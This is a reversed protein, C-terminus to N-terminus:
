CITSETDCLQEVQLSMCFSLIENISRYMLVDDAYFKVVSDISCPLNQDCGVILEITVCPSTNGHYRWSKDTQMLLRLLLM